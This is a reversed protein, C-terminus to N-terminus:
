TRVPHSGRPLGRGWGWTVSVVLITISGPPALRGREAVEAWIRDVEAQGPRPSPTPGPGEPASAPSTPSPTGPLPQGPHQAHRDM